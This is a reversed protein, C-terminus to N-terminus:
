GVMQWRLLQARAKARLIRMKVAGESTRIKGAIARISMKDRFKMMLIRHDKAPLKKLVQRLENLEREHIQWDLTTESSDGIDKGVPISETKRLRAQKRLYDICYNRTISFLWTSFKAEARFHPLNLFAQIFIEQTADQAVEQNQLMLLCKRFVKGQYQRYLLDFQETNRPPLRKIVPVTPNDETKM